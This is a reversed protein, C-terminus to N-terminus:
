GALKPDTRLATSTITQSAPSSFIPTNTLNFTEARFEFTGNKALTSSSTCRSISASMGPGRVIGVGANGFTRATPASYPTPDLFLVGPGIQHPDNPTGIVNARFSRAGTGSPDGSMKITLPFGTHATFIGGLRGAASFATSRGTGTALRVEEEPRVAARLRVLRRLRAQRRLLDPGVRSQRDYLNQMYASQGGAQGGEGYYGISDSMGKSWTYSLQYELGM